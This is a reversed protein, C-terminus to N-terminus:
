KHNKHSISWACKYNKLFLDLLKLSESGLSKKYMESSDFFALELIFKVGNYTPFDRAEIEFIENKAQM